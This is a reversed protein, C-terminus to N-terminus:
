VLGALVEDSNIGEHELKTKVLHVAYEWHELEHKAPFVTALLTVLAVNSMARVDLEALIGDVKHDQKQYFLARVGEVLPYVDKASEATAAMKYFDTLWEPSESKRVQFAKDSRQYAGLWEMKKSAVSYIREEVLALCETLHIVPSTAVYAATGFALIALSRSSLNKNSSASESQALPM